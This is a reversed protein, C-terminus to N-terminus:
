GWKLKIALLDFFDRNSKVLKLKKGYIRIGIEEPLLLGASVQGDATLIIEQRNKPCKVTISIDGVIVPRTSLSHPNLPTIIMVPLDPTVVPGGGALSYATSGTPTSIIVGDGKIGYVRRGDAYVDMHVVRAAAGNKIVIDNLAIFKRAGPGAGTSDTMLQAQLLIREETIFDGQSLARIFSGADKIEPGLFGLTGKNFHAVPIGYEAASRAARLVTGDGGASLVLETDESVDDELLEIGLELAARMVNEVTKKLSNKDKNYFFAIKKIM